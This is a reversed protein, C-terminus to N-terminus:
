LYGISQRKPDFPLQDNKPDAYRAYYWSSDVFTDMTDTERRADENCKPCKVNVWEPVSLLPNSTTKGVQVNDPLRVPLESDPVLVIGCKPCHIIPIPNGWYRQRSIGWDRLRYTVTGKGWNNAAIWETIATKAAESNMGEFQASATMIGPEVYAEENHRYASETRSEPNSGEDSIISRPM